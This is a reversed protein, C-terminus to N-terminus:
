SCVQQQNCVNLCFKENFHLKYKELKLKFFTQQIKKNEIKFKLLNERTFDSYVTFYNDLILLDNLTIVAM